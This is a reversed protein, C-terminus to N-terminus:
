SRSSPLADAMRNFGHALDGLEDDSTAVVRTTMHGRELDRAVASLKRVPGSITTALYMAFAWALLLIAAGALPLERLADYAPQVVEGYPATSIVRWHGIGTEGFRATLAQGTVVLGRTSRRHVYYDSDNGDRSAALLGSDADPHRSFAPAESDRTILVNGLSDLLSAHGSGPTVGDLSTLVDIFRDLNVVAVVARPSDTEGPSPVRTVLQLDARAPQRPADPARLV